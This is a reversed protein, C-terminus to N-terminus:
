CGSTCPTREGEAQRRERIDRIVALMCPQNQPGRYSSASVEVPVLAGSRTLCSLEDSRAQRNQSVSVLFAAFRETEHAHIESPRARPLEAASYGLLTLAQPNAELFRDAEIDVVLIADNSREFITRFREESLKMRAEALRREGVEGELAGNAQTLQDLKQDIEHSMDALTGALQRIERPGHDIQAFTSAPQEAASTLARVPGILKVVTIRWAAFVLAIYLMSLLASNLRTRARTRDLQRDHSAAGSNITENLSVLAAITAPSDRDLETLLTSLEAPDRAHEVRALRDQNRSVFTHLVNLDATLQHAHPSASLSELVHALGVGHEIAGPTLYTNGSGLVLDCWVLWQQLDAQAREAQAQDMRYAAQEAATEALVGHARYLGAALSLGGATCVLILTLIYHSIRM